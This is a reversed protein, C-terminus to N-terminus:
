AVPIALLIALTALFVLILGIGYLVSRVDTRPGFLVPALLWVVLGAALIQWRHRLVWPM